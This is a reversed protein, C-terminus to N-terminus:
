RGHVAPEALARADLADDLKSRDIAVLRRVISSGEPGPMMVGDFFGNRGMQLEVTPTSEEFLLFLWLRREQETMGVKMRTCYKDLFRQALLGNRDSEAGEAFSMEIGTPPALAMMSRDPPLQMRTVALDEDSSMLREEIRYGTHSVDIDGWIGGLAVTTMALSTDTSGESPQVLGGEDEDPPVTPSGDGAESWTSPPLADPVADLAEQHGMEKIASVVLALRAKPMNRVDDVLVGSAMLRNVFDVMATPINRLEDAARRRADNAMARLEHDIVVHEVLHRVLTAIVRDNAYVASDAFSFANEPSKSNLMTRLGAFAEELGDDDGESSEESDLVSKGGSVANGLERSIIRSIRDLKGGIGEEEIPLAQGDVSEFLAQGALEPAHAVVM